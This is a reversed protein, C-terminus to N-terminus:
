RKGDVITVGDVVGGTMHLKIAKGDPPVIDATPNLATGGDLVISTFAISYIQTAYPAICAARIMDLYLTEGPRLESLRNVISDVITPTAAAVDFGDAYDVISISLTLVSPHMGVAQVDVGAARWDELVVDADQVMEQTSLGDDDAVRVSVIGTDEDEVAHAVAVGSVNELVGEELAALTARRQTLWLNVAARMYDEDSQADNGGAFGNATATISPDSLADVISMAPDMTTADFNGARGATACTAAVTLGSFAGAPFALDYDTLYTQSAGTADPKTSEQNGSPVVGSGTGAGTRAFTISGYAATAPIRALGLRDMIIEDLEDGVAGGFFMARIKQAFWGVVHDFMASGARVIATSQDDDGFVLSPRVDQAEAQGIAEIDAFSPTPDAM